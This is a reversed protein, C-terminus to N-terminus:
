NLPTFYMAESAGASGSRTVKYYNGARVPFSFGLAFNVSTGQDSVLLTTPDTNKDTYGFYATSPNGEGTLTVIGDTTAVYASGVTKLSPEGFGIKNSDNTIAVINGDANNYFSGLRKYWTAGSPSTASLSIKYTATTSANTASIAYVFYTTSVAETGTDIDGWTVTTDSTNRLMLKASGAVDAVMIEGSTVTLSSADKYTVVQGQRYGALMRDLPDFAYNQTAVDLDNIKTTGQLPATSSGQYWQNASWSPLAIGLILLTLLLKKM